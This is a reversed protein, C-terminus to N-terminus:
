CCGADAFVWIKKENAEVSTTFDPADKLASCGKATVTEIQIRAMELSEDIVALGGGNHWNDTLHGVSDWIFLKM